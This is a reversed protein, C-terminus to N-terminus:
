AVTARPMELEGCVESPLVFWRLAEADVGLQPDRVAGLKRSRLLEAKAADAIDPYESDALTSVTGADSMGVLCDLLSVQSSAQASQYRWVGSAEDYKYFPLLRWGHEAITELAGLLYEFEAESIFYNFNLRVWGPRLLTSGNRIQAELAKSYHMDMNLLSHGYPGACSCGGRVQIGYLDNLLSVVFGYHLDREGHKFRMSVISLRPAEESGLVEINPCTQLRELARSIMAHERAEIVDTGIIQQVAFVMGARISEIIAPTGGEERREADTLFLHDEPTVYAVTGGGVVAPVRNGLLAEKVILVGPTGPGGVFKHPSLFVADIPAEGNVDIGVYPGAAAYDWFAQAGYQKLLATIEPVDSKIGTVNSAASFSGILLERSAFRKLQAELITTDIQGTKNLPISVVEAISERWPLENSHHEYPGIFVVPREAAPIKADLEYRDSLDAPLRLNLIDILKNIAATAGSGCFIVKDASTGNVSARIVERAQERLATTRAGTLSTETHTNAYFPLVQENIADEIFGLARGSATYDAYVLPKEGFPTTIARNAGIVSSRIKEITTTM